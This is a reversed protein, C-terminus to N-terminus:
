AAGVRATETGPGAADADAGGDLAALLERATRALPGRAVVRGSGLGARDMVAPLGAQPRMATLVDLGVAREVDTTRLGGPAPGRVVARIPGGCGHIGAVLRAAAACARVEAPIVVITLDAQRLVAGTTEDHFRPLDCVVTEGARRGADLVARVSQPTMGTGTGERDCSLLTLAGSGVTRGPLAEHLASAAIRGGSVTLGPWRLGATTEAGVALDLGGGLPDCDLLLCRDGRRAAALATATALVSAGAGGCGGTVALVRGSRPAPTERAEALLDVLRAEDDPLEIAQEAGAEFAARWFGPPPKTGVVVIGPRRPRGTASWATLAAEDLLVLSARRWEAGAADPDGVRRLECGAVAALRCVEDALEDDTTVLLLLHLSM